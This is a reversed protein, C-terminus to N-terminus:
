GCSTGPPCPSSRRRRTASGPTRTRSGVEALADALQIMSTVHSRPPIDDDLLDVCSITHDLHGAHDGLYDYVRALLLHSRWRLYTSRHEATWQNVEWMVQAAAALRGRRRWVEAQLLRARLRVATDDTAADAITVAQAEVADLDSDPQIEEL